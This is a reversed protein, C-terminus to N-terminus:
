IATNAADKESTVGRKNGTDEIRNSEKEAMEGVPFWYPMIM